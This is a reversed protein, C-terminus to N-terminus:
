PRLVHHLEYVEMEPPPAGPPVIERVIPMLREAYFREMQGHSEWVDFIRFGGDPTAGATHVLLGDPVDVDAGLRENIADYNTTNDGGAAWNQLMAIPM